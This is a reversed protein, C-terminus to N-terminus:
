KGQKKGIPIDKKVLIRILWTRGMEGTLSRQWGSKCCARPRQERLLQNCSMRGAISPTEYVAKRM